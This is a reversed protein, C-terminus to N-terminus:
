AWLASRMRDLFGIYGDPLWAKFLRRAEAFPWNEPVTYKKDGKVKKVIEEISKHEQQNISPQNM